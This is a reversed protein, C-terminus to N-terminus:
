FIIYVSFLRVKFESIQNALEEVKGNDGAMRNNTAVPKSATPKVPNVKPVLLKYCNMDKCNRMFELLYIVSFCLLCATLSLVVLLSCILIQLLVPDYNLVTVM